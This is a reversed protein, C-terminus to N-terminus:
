IRDRRVMSIKKKPRFVKRSVMNKEIPKAAEFVEKVEAATLFSVIYDGRQHLQKGGLVFKELVSKSKCVLTGDALCRHMADWAKDTEQLWNKDWLEEIDEQIIKKVAADGDAATLKAVGDDTLAFYVGRCAM